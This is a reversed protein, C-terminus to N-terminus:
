DLFDKVLTPESLKIMRPAGGEFYVNCRSRSARGPRPNVNALKAIYIYAAFTTELEQARMKKEGERIHGLSRTVEKTSM